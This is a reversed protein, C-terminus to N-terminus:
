IHALQNTLTQNAWCYIPPRRLRNFGKYQPLMNLYKQLESCVHLPQIMSLEINTCVLSLRGLQLESILLNQM